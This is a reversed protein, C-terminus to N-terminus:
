ERRGDRLRIDMQVETEPHLHMACFLVGQQKWTLDSVWSRVVSSM